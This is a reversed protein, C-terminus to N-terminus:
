TSYLVFPMILFVTLMMALMLQISRSLLFHIPIQLQRQSGGARGFLQSISNIGRLQTYSLIGGKAQPHAGSRLKWFVPKFGKEKPTAEINLTLAKQQEDEDDIVIELAGIGPSTRTRRTGIPRDAQCSIDDVIGHSKKAELEIVHNAEMNSAAADNFGKIRNYIDRKSAVKTSLDLENKTCQKEQLHSRTLAGLKPCEAKMSQSSRPTGTLFAALDDCEEEDLTVWRLPQKHEDEFSEKLAAGVRSIQNEIAVVFQRHRTTTIDNGRNKYSLMVAREFEELQWKATGLATQLERSLEYLDEPAVGERRERVWKRYVSEMIDASEQVEEAASFFTDKQWLDFCNAVLM